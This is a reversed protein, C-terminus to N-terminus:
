TLKSLDKELRSIVANKSGKRNVKIELALASGEFAYSKSNLGGERSGNDSYTDLDPVDVVALDVRNSLKGNEGFSSVESHLPISRVDDSTKELLSLSKHSLLNSFLHGQLDGETLIVNPNEIIYDATRLLENYALTSINATNRHTM